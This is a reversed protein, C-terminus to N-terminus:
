LFFMVLGRVMDWVIELWDDDPALFWKILLVAFGMGVIKWFLNHIKKDM